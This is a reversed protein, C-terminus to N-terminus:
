PAPPPTPRLRRLDVAMQQLISRDCLRNLDIFRPAKKFALHSQGLWGVWGAYLTHRFDLPLPDVTDDPKLKAGVPPVRRVLSEILGRLEAVNPTAYLAKPYKALLRKMGDLADDIQKDTFLEYWPDASPCTDAFTALAALGDDIRKDGASPHSLWGLRRLSRAVLLARSAYPPHTSSFLAGSPDIAHLLTKHACAFSPGFTVVGFLDCFFEQQWLYHAWNNAGGFTFPHPQNTTWWAVHATVETPGKPDHIWTDAVTPSEFRSGRFLPQVVDKNLASRLAPIAWAAHGIEHGFIAHLLVHHKLTRPFVINLVRRHRIPDPKFTEPYIRYAMLGGDALIHIIPKLGGTPGAETCLPVAIERLEHAFPWSFEGLHSREILSIPHSVLNSLRKAIETIAAHDAPKTAHLEARLRDIRTKCEAYYEPGDGPPYDHRLTEQLNGEVNEIEHLLFDKPTM